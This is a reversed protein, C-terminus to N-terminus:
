TIVAVIQNVTYIAGNTGGTFEKEQLDSRLDNQSLIPSLKEM